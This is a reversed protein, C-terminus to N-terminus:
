DAPGDLASNLRGLLAARQPGTEPRIGAMIAWCARAIAAPAGSARFEAIKGTSVYLLRAADVGSLGQAKQWDRFQEASIRLSADGAAFARSKPASNSPM